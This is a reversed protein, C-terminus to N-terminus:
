LSKLFQAASEKHRGKFRSKEMLPKSYVPRKGLRYYWLACDTVPCAKVENFNNGMCNMCKERMAKLPRLASDIM